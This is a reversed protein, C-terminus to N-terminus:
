HLLAGEETTYLKTKRRKVSKRRKAATLSKAARVAEALQRKPQVVLGLLFSFTVSCLFTEFGCTLLTGGGVCM